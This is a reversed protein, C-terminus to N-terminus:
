SGTSPTSLKLATSGRRARDSHKSLAALCQVRVWTAVHKKQVFVMTREGPVLLPLLLEVKTRKDGQQALVLAQAISAVSSGM